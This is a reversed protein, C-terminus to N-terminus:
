CWFCHQRSTSVFDGGDCTFTLTAYRFGGYSFEPVFHVTNNALWAASATYEVPGVNISPVPTGDPGLHEAFTFKYTCNVGDMAASGLWVRAATTASPPINVELMAAANQGFDLLWMRSGNAATTSMVPPFRAPFSETKRIPPHMASQLVGMAMVAPEHFVARRWAPASPSYGPQAWGTLSAAVTQDYRVGEFIGAITYPSPGIWWEVSAPASGITSKAGDVHTVSLLIRLVRVGM